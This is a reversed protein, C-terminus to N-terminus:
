SAQASAAPHAEVAKEAEHADSAGAIAPALPIRVTFTTGEGEMSEVTVEGGHLAVVERVVSLGIGMGGIHASQANTARYFREFLHALEDAPIGIGQDRVSVHADRDDTCLALTIEGGSPSYKVANQLLNLLVEELRMRDGIVSVHAAPGEYRLTHHDTSAAVESVVGHALAALDLREQEISLQGSAIRSVDLMADILTRLRQTQRVITTVARRNADSMGGERAMRRELLQAHTLLSTLPTKLEHSAISLFQDRMQVAERERALLRAREELTRYVLWAIIGLLALDTIAAFAYTITLAMLSTHADSEEGRLLTEERGRMTALVARIQDMTQKGRGSLVIQEAQQTQGTRRLDITQQMEGYKEGVLQRLEALSSRQAADNSLDASLANLRGGINAHSSNYPDLYSAIGTLIYGRQGTEANDLNNAVAELDGLVLETHAIRDNASRQVQTSHYALWSNFLLVLVFGAFLAALARNSLHKSRYLLKRLVYVVAARMHALQTQVYRPADM